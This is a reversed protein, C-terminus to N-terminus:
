AVNEIWRWVPGNGDYDLEIPGSRNIIPLGYDGTKDADPGDYVHADNDFWDFAWCDDHEVRPADTEEDWDGLGDPYVHCKSARYGHCYFTVDPELPNGEDDQTSVVTVTHLTNM